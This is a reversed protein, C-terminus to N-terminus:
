STAMGSALKSLVEDVALALRSWGPSLDTGLIAESGPFPQKVVVTVAVHAALLMMSSRRSQVNGPWPRQAPHHGSTDDVALEDLDLGIIQDYATLCIRLLAPGHGADAWEHLRRRM